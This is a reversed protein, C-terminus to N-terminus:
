LSALEILGLLSCYASRIMSRSGDSGSPGLEAHPDDDLADAAGADADVSVHAALDADAQEHQESDRLAVGLFVGLPQGALDRPEPDERVVGTAEIAREEVGAARREDDALERQQRLDACFPM